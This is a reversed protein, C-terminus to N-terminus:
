VRDIDINADFDGGDNTGAEPPEVDAHYAVNDPQMYCTEEYGSALCTGPYCDIHLQKIAGM